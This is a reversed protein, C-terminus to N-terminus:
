RAGTFLSILFLVGLTAFFSLLLLGLGGLLLIGGPVIFLLALTFLFGWFLLQFTLRFIGWIICALLVGFLLQIIIM